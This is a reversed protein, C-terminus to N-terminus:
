RRRLYSPRGRYRWRDRIKAPSTLDGVVTALRWAFFRLWAGMLRSVGKGIQSWTWKRDAEVQFM